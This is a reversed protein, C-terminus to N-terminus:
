PKGFGFAALVSQADPRALYDVFYAALSEDKAHRVAAVPYTNVVRGADRFPVGHVKSGAAKVDTVYVLGADAEGSIVKGLVDTVSQEESVPKIDVGTVKEVKAAAAGCPVQSACLVVKVDPDSLDKLSEIDAPNGPPTAIELTNTAFDQAQGGILDADMAKTMNAADASAFVDAPAGQEIQAVLDASGAFNFKVKVGHTDDEFRKGIETFAGQLSAAAFVTLTKQPASDSDREPVDPQSCGALTLLAAVILALRKM